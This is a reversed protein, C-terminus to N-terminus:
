VVHFRVRRRDVGLETELLNLAERATRRNWVEGPLTFRKGDKTSLRFSFCDGGSWCSEVRIKM